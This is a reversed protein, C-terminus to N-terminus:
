CYVYDPYSIENNNNNSSNTCWINFYKLKKADGNILSISSYTKNKCQRKINQILSSNKPGQLNTFLSWSNMYDNKKIHFCQNGILNIWYRIEHLFKNTSSDTKM